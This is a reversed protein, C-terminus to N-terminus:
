MSSGTSFSSHHSILPARSTLWFLSILRCVRAQVCFYSIPRLRRICRMRVTLIVSRKPFSACSYNKLRKWWLRVYPFIASLTSPSSMGAFIMGGNRLCDNHRPVNEKGGAFPSLASILFAYESVGCIGCAPKSHRGAILSCSSEKLCSRCSRSSTGGTILHWSVRREARDSSCLVPMIFIYAQRWCYGNSYLFFDRLAYASRAPRCTRYSWPSEESHESASHARSPLTSTSACSLNNACWRPM